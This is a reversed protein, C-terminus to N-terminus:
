PKLRCYLPSEDAGVAADVALSAFQHAKVTPVSSGLKQADDAVACLPASSHALEMAELQGAGLSQWPLHREIHPAPCM